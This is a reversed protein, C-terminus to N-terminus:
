PNCLATQYFTTTSEPENINLIDSGIIAFLKGLENVLVFYTLETTELSEICRYSIGIVIGLYSKTTWQMESQWEPMVTEICSNTRIKVLDGTKFM